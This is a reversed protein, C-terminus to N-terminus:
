VSAGERHLDGLSVLNAELGPVHIVNYLVVTLIGAPLKAQFRV